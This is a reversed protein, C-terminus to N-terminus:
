LQSIEFLKSINNLQTASDIIVPYSSTPTLNSLSKMLEDHVEAPVPTTKFSFEIRKIEPEEAERAVRSRRPSKVEKEEKREKKENESSGAEKSSSLVKKEEDKRAVISERRNSNGSDSTETNLSKEKIDTGAPTTTKKEPATNNTAKPEGKIAAIM